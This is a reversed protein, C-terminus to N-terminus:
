KIVVLKKIISQTRDFSLSVYYVGPQFHALDLIIQSQGSNLPTHEAVKGKTDIVSISAKSNNQPITFNVTVNHSAPNPILSLQPSQNNITKINTTSSQNRWGIGSDDCNPLYYCNRIFCTILQEDIFWGNMQLCFLEDLPMFPPADIFTASYPGTGNNIIAPFGSLAGQPSSFFVNYTSNPPPSFDFNITYLHNGGADVGGCLIELPEFRMECEWQDQCDPLTICFPFTCSNSAPIDNYVFTLCTKVDAWCGLDFSLTGTILQPNTGTGVIPDLSVGMCGPQALLQLNTSYPGAFNYYVWFEFTYHAINNADVGVCTIRDAALHEVLCPCSRVTITIPDSIVRCGEDSTVELTVTYIGPPLTGLVLPQVASNTGSLGPPGGTVHWIWTKYPEISGPLEIFDTECYDYCGSVLWDLSPTENVIVSESSTCGAADTFTAQYINAQVVTISNGSMGNSWTVNYLNTPNNTIDLQNNVGSCLDAPASTIVPQPPPTNVNINTTVSLTCITTTIPDQFYIHLTVPYSGPTTPPQLVLSPSTNTCTPCATNDILLSGLTWNYTYAIGLDGSINISEGFCVDLDGFIQPQPMTIERVPKIPNVTLQCGSHGAGLDFVTVLYNGTENVIIPNTTAGNSWLFNTGPPPNNPSFAVTSSQGECFPNPTASVNGNLANDEINIVLNSTFTCGILDTVVLSTNYPSLFDVDYVRSTVPFILSQTGDGFDWIATQIFNPSAGAYTFVVPTQKECYPGSNVTFIPQPPVAPVDVQLSFTCSHGNNDDVTLEVTYIGAQWQVSPSTANSFTTGNKKWIYTTPPTTLLVSSQNIFNVTYNSGGSPCVLEAKFRSVVYVDVTTCASNCEDPGPSPIDELANLCVQYTGAAGYTHTVTPSGFSTVAQSSGDGFSISYSYLVLNGTAFVEVYGCTINNATPATVPITPDPDCPCEGVYITKSNTCGNADTVTVTYNGITAVVTSNSTSGTSWLYYVYGSTETLTIPGPCLLAPNPSVSIPPAPRVTVTYSGSECNNINYNPNPNNNVDYYGIVNGNFPNTNPPVIYYAHPNPVPLPSFGPNSSSSTGDAFNWTFIHNINSTSYGSLGFTVGPVGECVPNPNTTVNLTNENLDITISYVTPVGCTYSKISLTTGISIANNWQVQINQTFQGSAISGASEPLISWEVSESNIPWNQIAYNSITNLCTKRPGEIIPVIPQKQAVLFIFPLSECGTERDIVSLQIQAGTLNSWVISVADGSADAPSGGVVVWHYYLNSSSLPAATYQYALGICVEDEGIPTAPISPAANVKIQFTVLPNCFNNQYNQVELTFLGPGHPWNTLTISAVNIYQPSLTTGAANKFRFRFISGLVNNQTTYTVSNLASLNECFEEDGIITFPEKVDVLLSTTGQPCGLFTNQYVCSITASGSFTGWDVIIQNTGQGNVITGSSVSWAYTSGPVLPVSYVAQVGLCAPNPGSISAGNSFIPIVISSTAACNTNLCNVGALSVIGPGNQGSGWTVQITNTYPQPSIIIGNSVTWNYTSCNATTTYSSTAGQCVPTPCEIDVWQEPDVEIHLSISSSCNCENTVTLTVDYGGPNAYLHEENQLVSTTGDGFDWLWSVIPSGYTPITSEDFFYVTQGDCIHLVPNNIIDSYPVTSFLATPKKIKTVCYEKTFSCGNNVETIQVTGSGAVGWNVTFQNGNPVSSVAGTAVWYYTSGPNQIVQYNAQSYECVQFCEAPAVQPESHGENDIYVTCEIDVDTTVIPDPISNISVSLGAISPASGGSVTITVNVVGAGSQGWTVSVTSNTNSGNITGNGSVSWNYTLPTFNCAAGINISYTEIDDPCVSNIGIVTCQSFSNFSSLSFISFLAIIKFLLNKSFFLHRTKQTILALAQKQTTTQYNM